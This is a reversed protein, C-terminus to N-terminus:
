IKRLGSDMSAARSISYPPKIFRNSIPRHSQECLRMVKQRSKSGQQDSYRTTVVIHDTSRSKTGRQSWLFRSQRKIPRHGVQQTVTPEETALVIRQIHLDVVVVFVVVLLIIRVAQNGHKNKTETKWARNCCSGAFISLFFRFADLCELGLSKYLM